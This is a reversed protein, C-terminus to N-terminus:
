MVVKSETNIKMYKGEFTIHGWIQYNLLLDVGRNEFRYLKTENGHTKFLTAPVLKTHPLLVYRVCCVVGLRAVCLFTLAM